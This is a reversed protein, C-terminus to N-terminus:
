NNFKFVNRSGDIHVVTPYGKAMPSLLLYDVAAAGASQGFITVRAPDGGFSQINGQVWQLAAVLDKLGFNGSLAPDEANLFGAM